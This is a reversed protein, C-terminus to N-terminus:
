ADDIEIGFKRVRLRNVEDEAAIRKLAGIARKSIEIKTDSANGFKGFKLCTHVWKSLHRGRQSKFLHYYEDESTNALIVEDKQNWGNEGAIRALVQEANEDVVSAAYKQNFKEVVEPDKIDGFFNNEEMNFLEIDESREKIYLDISESALEDEGLERFLRVVGNLNTPSIQKANAKLSDFIVKIVEEQNNDFSDHYINWADHSARESKSALYQDNIKSAVPLFDEEIFFGREVSNALEADLEDTLEYEYNGLVSRWQKEQASIEDGEDLGFSSYGLKSVYEVSPISEDSQSCYSCWSFLTLSQIIQRLTEEELGEALPQVLEALREIKKLVRINKIGLKITFYKLESTFPKDPDYAIDACEEPSPSFDIELDIVKEKYKTYDDLGEEGDNLLIVIKCKKQEKLQSILGLIDRISLGQGSRELDDICILTQKLSLFSISEIVSSFNTSDKFTGLFGRGVKTVLDTSNKKFSDLDAEAGIIERSVVNEFISFKFSDLSNIGFLSVYSYKELAIRNEKKAELLFKNWSFTKGVGWVGKIALVEATPSSLFADIQNKIIQITM